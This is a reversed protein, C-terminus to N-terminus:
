KDHYSVALLVEMGLVGALNFRYNRYTDFFRVGIKIGDTDLLEIEEPIMIELKYEKGDLRTTVKKILWNMIPEKILELLKSFKIKNCATEYRYILESGYRQCLRKQYINEGM